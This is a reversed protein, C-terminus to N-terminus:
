RLARWAQCAPDTEAQPRREFRVGAVTSAAVPRWTFDIAKGDREVQLLADRETDGGYISWGKLVDGERLGAAAAASGSVLGVLRRQKVSAWVDFGLEFRRFEAPQMTFCPGLLTDRYPIPGAAEVLAAVDARPQSGLLPELASFLRETALPQRGQDSATPPPLLLGRLIAATSSGRERLQADWHLALL